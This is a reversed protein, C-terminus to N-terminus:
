IASNIPLFESISRVIDIEQERTWRNAHSLLEQAFDRILDDVDKQDMIKNIVDSIDPVSVLNWYYTKNGKHDESKGNVLIDGNKAFISNLANLIETYVSYIRNNEQNLLDYLDEYFEIMQETREM